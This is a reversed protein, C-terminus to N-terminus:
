LDGFLEFTIDRKKIIALVESPSEVFKLLLSDLSRIHV